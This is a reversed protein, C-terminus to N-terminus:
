ISRQAARMHWKIVIFPSQLLYHCCPLLVYKLGAAGQYSFM